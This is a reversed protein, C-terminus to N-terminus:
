PVTKKEKRMLEFPFIHGLKKRWIFIRRWVKAQSNSSLSFWHASPSTKDPKPNKNTFMENPKTLWIQGENRQWCFSVKKDIESLNPDAIILGLPSTHCACREGIKILHTNAVQSSLFISAKPHRRAALNVSWIRTFAGVLFDLDWRLM